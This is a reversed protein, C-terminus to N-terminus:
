MTRAVQEKHYFEMMDGNQIENFDALTLGCEYGTQVERVDDKFRKLSNIKGDHMVVGSRLVRM